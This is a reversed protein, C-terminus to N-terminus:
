KFCTSSAPCGHLPSMHRIMVEDDPAGQAGSSADCQLKDWPADVVGGLGCGIPFHIGGVTGALDLRTYYKPPIPKRSGVGSKFPEPEWMSLKTGCLRASAATDHVDGYQKRSVIVSVTGTPTAELYELMSGGAKLQPFEDADLFGAWKFGDYKAMMFGEHIWATKWHCIVTM